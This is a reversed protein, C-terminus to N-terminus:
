AGRGTGIVLAGMAIAPLMLLGNIAVGVRAPRPLAMQAADRADVASKHALLAAAALLAAVFGFGAGTDRFFLLVAWVLVGVAVLRAVAWPLSRRHRLALVFGSLGVLALLLLYALGLAPIM